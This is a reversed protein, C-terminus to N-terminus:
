RRRGKTSGKQKGKAAGSGSAKARGSTSGKTRGKGKSKSKAGGKAGGRSPRSGRGGSSRPGRSRERPDVAGYLDVRGRAPEVSEVKIEVQDGIAVRRGTRLGVLATETEDIEYRDGPMRRAPYFGEYVEGLEGGFHLFAGAGIVGRVEGTFTAEPGAAFLEKQLLFAACIDDADREVRMSDREADSCHMAVGGVEHRDPAEESGEVASLLARHVVLDPYRRIPSTFHCYAPSALGAHGRNEENYRAPKMARLV